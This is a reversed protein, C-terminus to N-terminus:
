NDFKQKNHNYTMEKVNFYPRLLIKVIAEIILTITVLILLVTFNHIATNFLRFSVYNYIQQICVFLLSLCILREIFHHIAM